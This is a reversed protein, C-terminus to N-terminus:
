HGGGRASRGGLHGRSDGCSPPRAGDAQSLLRQGARANALIAALPQKMEHALATSLEGVLTVRGLHTLESRQEAAQAESERLAAQTRLRRRRELLLSVITGSQLLLVGLTILITTRHREWPSAIRYRVIAGAPLRREDVGWRRLQRWDFMDM